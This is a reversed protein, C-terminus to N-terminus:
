RSAERVASGPSRREGVWAAIQSRSHFGLKTLINEVHGEATRQAIVLREAIAKNSLGDAVLHSIEDERKTLRVTTREVAATAPRERGMALTFAEERPMQAGSKYAADYARGLHKRCQEEAQRMQDLWDDSGFLRAGFSDWLSAAAGLLVASEEYREAGALTWALLDMTTSLGCLDRFFWKIELAQRAWGISAATDGEIKAVFGRGFLAYSLLWREGTVECVEVCLDFQEQSRALDGLFLHALGLQVRLGIVYDDGVDARQYLPLAELLLDVCAAPDQFLACLGSIHTTYALNAVDDLDGAIRRGETSAEEARTRDGQLSAVYTLTALARARSSSPELCAAVIRELWHRGEDLFLAIWLFWPRGLLDLGRVHCQDHQLCHEAAARINARELRLVVCWREQLPGFWQLSAQTILDECWALQRHVVDDMAEEATLRRLGHERLPELLKFRVHGDVETRSLVSKDVLGEVSDLVVDRPLSDDACVWEAAEIGFGGAFISSRAWLLREDPTCLEYSWDITAEITRHRSPGTRGPQRLVQLRADLRQVLDELGLVRLKVAALEIALPIGELRRCLEAALAQNDATLEFGPVAAAARERFLALSPYLEVGGSELDGDPPVPLPLVPVVAEGPVGLVQRSTAVIRLDPSHRLLEDALAAVDELLHECNDLFLVVKRDRVHHLVQVWTDRGPAVDDLELADSVAQHLLSPDRLDALEIWALDDPNTRAIERAVRLALRTKGVGGFGTLTVLRAEGLLRKVRALEARRGEFSTLDGPLRWERRRRPEPCSPARGTM